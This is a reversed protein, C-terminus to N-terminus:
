LTERVPAHSTGRFLGTATRGLVDDLLGPEDAFFTRVDDVARAQAGRFPYDSGLVLRGAGVTEVACRLAPPHYSCTDLHVRERLYHGLEHEADGRGFDAVRQVVYPLFGGLHPVVLQLSPVRDLVGSLVLRAFAVTSSTLPALSAELLWEGYVPPLPEVAPHLVVPLGCAAVAALVPEAVDPALAREAGTTLVQVGSVLPDGSVRDLEALASEVHPLPLSVLVSLRGGSGDALGLMEDNAARAVAAADAPSGFTAAPPPLSVLCHDVGAAAMDEYRRDPSNAPDDAAAASLLRLRHQAAFAPDRLAQHLLAARYSPPVYHTHTDVVPVAPTV